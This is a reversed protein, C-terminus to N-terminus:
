LENFRKKWYEHSENTMCKGNNLTTLMVKVLRKFENVVAEHDKLCVVTARPDLQSAKYTKTKM